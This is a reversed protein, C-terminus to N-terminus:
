DNNKQIIIKIKIKKYLNNKEIRSNVKMKM